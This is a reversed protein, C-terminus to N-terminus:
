RLGGARYACVSLRLSDILAQRVEPRDDVTAVLEDHAVVLRDIQRQVTAPTVASGDEGRLLLINLMGERRHRDVSRLDNALRIASSAADLARNLRQFDADPWCREDVLLVLALAAARYNISRCALRLYSEATPHRVAGRRVRRSLVSHAVGAALGDRLSDVVHPLLADGPDHDGLGSLIELLIVGLLDDPAVRHDGGLLRAVRREVQRLEPESAGPHDLQDDLLFTWLCFRLRLELRDM